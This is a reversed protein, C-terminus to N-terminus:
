KERVLEAALQLFETNQFDLPFRTNGLRVAVLNLSPIVYVRQGWHGSAAFADEPVGFWPSPMKAEPLPRNLWWHRGGIEGWSAEALRGERMAPPPTTSYEVWGQPLIRQGCWEGKNLYLQGFRAWDRATAYVYSSGIFTGSADREWSASKMGLPDFLKKWPLDDYGSGYVSKLMGMLLNSDGSSYRWKRGPEFELGRRVSYLATDQRGHHYLQNLIDSQEPRDGGEYVEAWKLGSSWNLLDEVRIRAAHAGASAYGAEAATTSLKLKNERIAIGVLANVVSKAMSWGLHPRTGGWLKGYTEFVIKGKHVVIAADTARFAAAQADAPFLYAQLARRQPAKAPDEHVAWDGGSCLPSAAAFSISFYFSVLLGFQFTM